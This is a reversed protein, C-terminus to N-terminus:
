TVSSARVAGGCTVVTKVAAAVNSPIYVPRFGTGVAVGMWCVLTLRLM